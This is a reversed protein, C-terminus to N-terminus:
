PGASDCKVVTCARDVGHIGTQRIKHVFSHLDVDDPPCGGALRGDPVTRLASMSGNPANVKM